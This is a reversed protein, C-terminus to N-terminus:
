LPVAVLAWGKPLTAKDLELKDGVLPITLRTKADLTLRLTVDTFTTAATDGTKEFWIHDSPKPFAKNSVELKPLWNIMDDSGMVAKPVTVLVRQLPETQSAYTIVIAANDAGKLVADDMETPATHYAIIRDFLHSDLTAWQGSDGNGGNANFLYKGTELSYVAHTALEVCCGYRTVVFYPGDVASEDGDAEITFKADGKGSKDLPYVTAKVKGSVRESDVEPGEKNVHTEEVKVLQYVVDDKTHATPGLTAPFFDTEFRSNVTTVQYVGDGVPTSSFSATASDKALEGEAPAASISALLLAPVLAAALLASRSM